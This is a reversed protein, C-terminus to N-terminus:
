PIGTLNKAAVDRTKSPQRTKAISRGRLAVWKILKPDM